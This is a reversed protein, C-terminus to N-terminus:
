SGGYTSLDFHFKGSPIRTQVDMLGTIQGGFEAPFGATLFSVKSIVKPDVIENLGGFVGLPVPIGDILYSFEGHQGRIHVEGTPAKAARFLTTYPFLTSRPPRRIM